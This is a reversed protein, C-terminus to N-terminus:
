QYNNSSFKNLMPSVYTQLQVSVVKKLLGFTGQFIFGHFATNFVNATAAAVGSCFFTQWCLRRSWFSSLDEMAYLLGGIPANFGAAVGAAIGATTFSRRSLYVCKDM